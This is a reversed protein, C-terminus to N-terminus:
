LRNIWVRALEPWLGVDEKWTLDIPPLGAPPDNNVSESMEDSNNDSKEDSIEDTKKDSKNDFIEDSKEDSKIDSKEDTSVDLSDPNIDPFQEELEKKRRDSVNIGKGAKVAKVAYELQEFTYRGETWEGFFEDTAVSLGHFGSPFVYHAYPVKNKRLAEAMLYSNEVPVLEDTATQWIFCPPTNETVHKDLSFYDMEEDTRGEGLLTIFSYLHAYEGSTIVPYSLIVGDPRNSVDKYIESKDEVDDYHVALSGCVHAGASFGCIILKKDTINYLGANKRLFRVARSVDELPQKKLPVSMTIDTTYTLVFVNMGQNYFTKAPLEGEHPVVMCYGGGPVILMCDRIEDDEHLYAHINPIFGYSAEYNYESAEWINERFVKM